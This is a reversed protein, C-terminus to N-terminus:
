CLANNTGNELSKFFKRPRTMYGYKPRRKQLRPESRGPRFPLSDKIITRLMKLWGHKKLNPKLFHLNNIWSLSADLTGKFSIQHPSYGSEDAACLMLWRILNHAILYMKMQKRAMEPSRCPLWEMGLTTKLNRFCLEIEWRRLYLKALKEIATEMLTTVLVIEKSRMGPHDIKLRVYRVQITEPLREWQDEFIHQPMRCIDKRYWTAIREYENKKWKIKRSQHLRFISNAQKGAIMSVNLFSCFGRDALVIDNERISEILDVQFWSAEHEFWPSDAVQLIAGTDLNLLSVLQMVPWGCGPKQNSPQPYELQNELTDALQCSSGDLALLRGEQNASLLDMQHCLSKHVEDIIEEPLRDRAKSYAATNSSIPKKGLRHRMAQVERVAARQSGGRLVQSLFAWFTTRTCFIRQRSNEALPISEPPIVKGFVEALQGPVSERISKIREAYKERESKPRRGFLHHFGPLYRRVGKM